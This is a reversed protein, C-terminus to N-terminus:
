PPSRAIAEELTGQEIHCRDIMCSKDLHIHTEVFGPRCSGAMSNRRRRMPPSEVEIEAIRGDAIGIDLPAQRGALLARRLVLELPM